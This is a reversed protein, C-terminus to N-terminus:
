DNPPSAPPTAFSCMKKLLDISFVNGRGVCEPLNDDNFGIVATLKAWCIEPDIGHRRLLREPLQEQKYETSRHERTSCVTPVMLSNSSPRGEFPRVGWLFTGSFPHRQYFFQLM